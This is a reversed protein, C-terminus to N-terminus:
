AKGIRSDVFCILASECAAHIDRERRGFGFLTSGSGSLHLGTRDMLADLRPEARRAAAELDNRFLDELTDEAADDIRDALAEIRASATGADAPADPAHLAAYVAPTATSYPPLLLTTLFPRPPALPRVREGRGMCLATGGHLFFPVDSGLESAIAHLAPADLPEGLLRNLADLTTAADSSGGGLGGGAPIRKALSVDVGVDGAAGARGLLAHAARVVLNDPGRPVGASSTRMALRVDTQGDAHGARRPRLAVTIEDCLDVTQLVTLLEHFGDERRGLVELYLNVKAPAPLTLEARRESSATV